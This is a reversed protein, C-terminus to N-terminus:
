VFLINVCMDVSTFTHIYKVTIRESIRCHYHPIGNKKTIRDLKSLAENLKHCALLFYPKNPIYCALKLGVFEFKDSKEIGIGMQFEFIRVFISM